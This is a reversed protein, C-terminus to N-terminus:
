DRGPLDAESGSELMLRLLLSGAIQRVVAAPADRGVGELEGSRFCAGRFSAWEFMFPETRSLDAPMPAAIDVPCGLRVSLPVSGHKRKLSKYIEEINEVLQPWGARCFDQRIATENSM